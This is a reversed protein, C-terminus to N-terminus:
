DRLHLTKSGAECRSVRQHDVELLVSRQLLSVSLVLRGSDVLVGEVGALPGDGIRMKSGVSPYPHPEVPLGLEMAKRIGEIESPDLPTPGAVSGVIYDVGPTTLIPLRNVPDFCSFVYGPFLPFDHERRHGEYRVTRTYLPLFQDFGKYSLRSAVSKEHRSKVRIAYWSLLGNGQVRWLGFTWAVALGTVVDCLNTERVWLPTGCRKQAM